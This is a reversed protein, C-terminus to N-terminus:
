SSRKLGSELKAQKKAQKVADKIIDDPKKFLGKKYRDLGDDALARCYHSDGLVKKCEDFVSKYLFDYPSM